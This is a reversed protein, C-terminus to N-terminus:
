PFCELELRPIPKQAIMVSQYFVESSPYKSEPFFYERASNIGFYNHFRWYGNMNFLMADKPQGTGFFDRTSIQDENFTLYPM